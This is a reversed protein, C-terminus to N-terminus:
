LAFRAAAVVALGVAVAVAGALRLQGPSADLYVRAALKVVHPSVLALGGEIVLVLGLASVLDRWAFM